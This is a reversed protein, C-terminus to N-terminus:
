IVKCFNCVGNSPGFQMWCWLEAHDFEEYAAAVVVTYPFAEIIKIRQQEQELDDFIVGSRSCYTKLYHELTSVIM